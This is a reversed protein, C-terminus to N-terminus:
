PKPCPRVIVASPIRSVRSPDAAFTVHLQGGEAFVPEADTLAVAPEGTDPHYYINHPPRQGAGLSVAFDLAPATEKFMALPIGADTTRPDEGALDFYVAIVCLWLQQKSKEPRAIYHLRM